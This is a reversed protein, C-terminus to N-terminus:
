NKIAYNGRKMEMDIALIADLTDQDAEVYESIIKGDKATMKWTGGWRIGKILRKIIWDGTVEMAGDPKTEITKSDIVVFVNENDDANFGSIDGMFDFAQEQVDDKTLNIMNGWRDTEWNARFIYSDDFIKMLEDGNGDGTESNDFDGTEAIEFAECIAFENTGEELAREGECDLDSSQPRPNALNKPVAVMTEFLGVLVLAFLIKM